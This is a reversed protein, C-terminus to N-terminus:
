ALKGIKGNQGSQDNITFWLNGDPGKTISTSIFGTGPLPFNTIMSMSTIRGIRSSETFWLNGDHGVTIGIPYNPFKGSNTLPFETITGTPTIRGISGSQGTSNESETFWLNGDPGATI